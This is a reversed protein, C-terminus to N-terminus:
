IFIFAPFQGGAEMTGKGTDRPDSFTFQVGEVQVSTHGDKGYWSVPGKILSELMYQKNADLSVLNGFSVFFSYYNNNAEKKSTFTGSREVVIVNTAIHKVRTSVTNDGGDSGFHQIGLLKIPKNVSFHVIDSLGRNCNWGTAAKCYDNFRNVRFGLPERRAGHLFPLTSKLVNGFYKIMDGTEKRSLIATDCVVTAFEALSMLPFRIGKVIEEGLFQRKTEGDLTLGQRKGEETAWRDVAKIIHISASVLLFM